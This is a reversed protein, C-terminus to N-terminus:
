RGDGSWGVGTQANHAGVLACKVKHVFRMVGLKTFVATLFPKLNHYTAIRWWAYLRQSIAHPADLVTWDKGYIPLPFHPDYHGYWKKPAIVRKEPNPNLWASWWSFSSNSIINHACLTHIWFQNQVSENEIFTYDPGKFFRKCWPIDDSCVVFPTGEPFQAVAAKLYKEGVFPHKEPLGMYDGRRVSIGTVGPKALTDGYRSTLEEKVSTPIRLFARVRAFDLFGEYQYYGTMIFDFNDDRLEPPVRAALEAEDHRPLGKPVEDWGSVCTVSAGSEDEQWYRKYDGYQRRYTETTLVITIRSQLSRAAAIMFLWNGLRGCPEFYIM